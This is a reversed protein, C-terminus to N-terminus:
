DYVGRRRNREKGKEKKGRDIVSACKRMTRKKHMESYYKGRLDVKFLV